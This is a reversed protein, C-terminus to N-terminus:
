TSAVDKSSESSPKRVAQRFMVRWCCDTEPSWDGLQDNEILANEFHWEKRNADTYTQCFWELNIIYCMLNKTMQFIFSFM